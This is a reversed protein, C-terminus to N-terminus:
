KGHGAIRRRVEAVLGLIGGRVFLVLLVLALGLWFQWYQPTAAALIDYMAKYAAAGVIAGYLTGVGGFIVILMVDASRHFELVDLSVFSTTQALLAGAVGAYAAGLTYAANLRRNVPIGIARARLANGKIARLSLGYPSQVIKRALVFLLFLVTLSYLYANRGYLDFDFLGLIKSPAVGQLGDAGGTLWAMRNALEAFILAVGLTVMLRTLDAGRLVLFSTIYGVFGCVLAAFLLGLTPDSLPAVGAGAKALLGAAYAGLGFFAGHGLSVIGAYGLVIDLSVAFLALIAVENFLLARSPFLIVLAYAAIWLAIEPWRWRARNAFWSMAQSTRRGTSM